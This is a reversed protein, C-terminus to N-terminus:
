LVFLLLGVLSWLAWSALTLDSSVSKAGFTRHIYLMIFDICWKLLTDVVSGGGAMVLTSSCSAVTILGAEGEESVWASMSALALFQANM